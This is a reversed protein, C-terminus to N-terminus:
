KVNQRNTEKIDVLLPKLYIIPSKSFIYLFYLNKLVTSILLKGNGKKMKIDALSMNLAWFLFLVVM